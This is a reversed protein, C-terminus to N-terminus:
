AFKLSLLFIFCEMLKSSPDTAGFGPQLTSPVAPAPNQANCVSLGILVILVYNEM